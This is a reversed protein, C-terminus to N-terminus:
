YLPIRLYLFLTGLPSLRWKGLDDNRARAPFLPDDTRRDIQHDPGALLHFNGTDLADGVDACASRAHGEVEEGADAAADVGVDDNAADRVPVPAGRPDEKS